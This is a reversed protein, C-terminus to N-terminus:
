LWRKKRFFFLLGVGVLGMLAIVLWFALPGDRLPMVEHNMGWISTVLSLPLIIASFITLVRMIQSIHDAMLSTQTEYLVDMM